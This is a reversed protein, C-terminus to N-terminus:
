LHAGSQGAEAHVRSRHRATAPWRSDARPFVVKEAFTMAGYETCKIAVIAQGPQTSRRTKGDGLTEARQERYDGCM